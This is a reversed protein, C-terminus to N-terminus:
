NRKRETCFLIKFITWIFRIWKFISWIFRIGLHLLLVVRGVWPYGQVPVIELLPHTNSLHSLWFIQNQTMEPFLDRAHKAFHAM